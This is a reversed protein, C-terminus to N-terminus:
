IQVCATLQPPANATMARTYAFHRTEAAPVELVVMTTCNWAGLWLQRQIPHRPRHHLTLSTSPASPRHQLARSPALALLCVM